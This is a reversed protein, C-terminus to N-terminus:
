GVPLDPRGHPAIRNWFELTEKPADKSLLWGYVSGFIDNAKGKGGQVKPFFFWGLKADPLGKKDAAYM